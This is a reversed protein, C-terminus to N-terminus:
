AKSLEMIDKLGIVVTAPVVFAMVASFVGSLYIGIYLVSALSDSAGGLYSVIVLITAITLFEKTEKGTVNLFGVVLGAAAGTLAGSIALVVAAGLGVLGLGGWAFKMALMDALTDFIGGDQKQWNLVNVDTAGIKAKRSRAAESRAEAESALGAETADLSAKSQAVLTETLAQVNGLGEGTTGNLKSLKSSVESLKNDQETGAM